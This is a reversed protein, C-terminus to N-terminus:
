KKEYGMVEKQSRGYATCKGSRLEMGHREWTENLKAMVFPALELTTALTIDDVYAWYELDTTTGSGQKRMEDEFETM